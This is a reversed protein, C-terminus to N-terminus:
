KNLLQCIKSTLTPLDERLLYATSSTRNQNVVGNGIGVVPAPVMYSDTQSILLDCLNDDLFNDIIYIPINFDNDISKLGPYKLDIYQYKSLNM